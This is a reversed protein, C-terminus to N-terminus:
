PILGLRGITIAEIKNDGNFKFGLVYGNMSIGLFSNGFNEPNRAKIATAMQTSQDFNWPSTAGNLYSLQGIAAGRTLPGCCETALIIFSVTPLM